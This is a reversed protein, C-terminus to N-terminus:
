LRWFTLGRDTAEQPDVVANLDVLVGNKQKLKKSLECLDFEEVIKNHRVALVLADCRPIEEWSTLSRSYEHELECRDALPDYIHVKCGFSELAHILDIVKTNRLDPVNEKFTVGLVGIDISRTHNSQNLLLRMTKSAVFNAMTDNIRRGSLIVQPHIGVSEALHTLYYPDVGICHGGVLGPRFGLFNWKTAAAELVARTDLGVREFLVALENILAINIDRQTNEIVKAAEATAISPAQHIGAKIVSSYIESVIELSEKDTASVVKVINEITHIEDGPNVREPSYGLKFDIRYKLGSTRELTERCENETLGPYVTSEYIVISGPKLLSGVSNSARLLPDLNPKKFRDIPTPVAVIFVRCSNLADLDATFSLTPQNLQNSDKIENTRDYGNRLEDVRGTNVDYGIVRFKKALLCALPLGVYGLGIVAIPSDKSFLGRMLLSFSM